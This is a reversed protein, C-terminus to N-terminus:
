LGAWAGSGVDIAQLMQLDRTTERCCVRCRGAGPTCKMLGRTKPRTKATGTGAHDIKTLPLNTQGCHKALRCLKGLM